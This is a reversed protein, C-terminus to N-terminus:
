VPQKGLFIDDLRKLPEARLSYSLFSFREKSLWPLPQTGERGVQEGTEHTSPPLTAVLNPTLVQQDEPFWAMNIVDKTSFHILRQRLEALTLAPERTLMLAVIGPPVSDCLSTAQVQKGFCLAGALARMCSCGSPSSWSSEPGDM